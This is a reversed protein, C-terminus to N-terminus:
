SNSVWLSPPSHLALRSSLHLDCFLCRLRSHSNLDMWSLEKKRVDMTRRSWRDEWAFFKIFKIAGLLENLVGMRKGPAALVGKSISVSCGSLLRRLTLRHPIWQSSPVYQNLLRFVCELRSAQVPFYRRTRNRFTCRLHFIDRFRPVTRWAPRVQGPVPSSPQAPFPSSRLHLSAPGCNQSLHSGSTPSTPARQQPPCLQHPLRLQHTHTFSINCPIPSCLPSGAPWTSDNGTCSNWNDFGDIHVEGAVHSFGM